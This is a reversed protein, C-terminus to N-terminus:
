SPKWGKPLRAKDIRAMECLVDVLGFFDIAGHGAARAAM